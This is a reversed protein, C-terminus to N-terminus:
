KNILQYETKNKLCDAEIELSCVKCLQALITCVGKKVLYITTATKISCCECPCVRELEENIINKQIMDVLM